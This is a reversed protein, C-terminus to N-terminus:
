VVGFGRFVDMPKLLVGALGVSQLRSKSQLALLQQEM